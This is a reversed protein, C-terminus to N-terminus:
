FYKVIGRWICRLEPISHHPGTSHIITLHVMLSAHMKAM